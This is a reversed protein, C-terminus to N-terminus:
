FVGIETEDTAGGLGRQPHAILSEMVGLQIQSPFLFPIVKVMAAVRLVDYVVKCDTFTNFVLKMRM